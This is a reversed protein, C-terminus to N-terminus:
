LVERRPGRIAEQDDIVVVEDDVRRGDFLEHIPKEHQRRCEVDEHRCPSPRLPSRRASNEVALDGLDVAALERHGGLLRCEDQVPSGGLLYLCEDLLSLAPRGQDAERSQGRGM